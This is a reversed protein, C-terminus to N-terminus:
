QKLQAKAVYGLRLSSVTHGKKKAVNNDTRQGEGGVDEQRKRWRKRRTTGEGRNVKDRGGRGEGDGPIEQVFQATQHVVGLSIGEARSVIRWRSGSRLDM